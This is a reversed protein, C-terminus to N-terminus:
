GKEKRREDPFAPIADLVADDIPLSLAALNEELQATSTVGLLVSSLGPQRLLWRLALQAPSVGHSRAVSALRQAYAIAEPGANDRLWAHTGLRTDAAIGHEYKNTLVGSALPSWAFLGLGTEALVPLVEEEVRRRCLLNFESQEVIPAHWGAARCLQVARRIEAAPWQSTGWYLVKGARCLDEMARATEEIETEPDYRHCFYIDVYDLGLRALSGDVSEVVHKRSLGRETVRPGTPFFVKSTVVLSNRPLEKLIPGLLAEAEGQAYVDALDFLNIGADHARRVLAEVEGRDRLKAGFTLWAGLGFVSVKLGSRGVRRYDM